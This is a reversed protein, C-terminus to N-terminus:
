TGVSDTIIRLHQGDGQPLVPVAPVFCPPGSKGGRFDRRLAALAMGTMFAIYIGATVTHERMLHLRHIPADTFQGRRMLLRNTDFHTVALQSAAYPSSRYFRNQPM